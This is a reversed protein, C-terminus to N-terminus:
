FKFYPNIFIIEVIIDDILPDIEVVTKNYDAVKNLTSTPPIIVVDVKEVTSATPKIIPHM